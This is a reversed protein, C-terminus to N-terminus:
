GARQVARVEEEFQTRVRYQFAGIDRSGSRLERMWVDIADRVANSLAFPNLTVIDGDIDYIGSLERSLRGRSAVYGEHALAHRFRTEFVAAVTSPKGRIVVERSMGDVRAELWAAISSQSGPLGDLRATSEILAAVLLASAFLAGTETDPLEELKRIPRVFFGEIRREVAEVLAHPDDLPVSEMPIQPAFYLRGHLEGM